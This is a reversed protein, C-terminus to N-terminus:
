NSNVFSAEAVALTFPHAKADVASEFKEVGKLAVKFEFGHVTLQDNLKLFLQVDARAPNVEVM